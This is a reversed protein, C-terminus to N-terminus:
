DEMNITITKKEVAATGHVDEVEEVTQLGMLAAPCYIRAFFSAARYQLMQEPMTKWKSGDKTSWGEDKAMQMTITSGYLQEGDAKRTCTVYCGYSPTNREGIFVFRLPSFQGTGNILAICAQGSWAPKGKVIYLSQMVLTPSVNMRNALECAVFCNDKNHQYNDPVIQSNAYFGALKMLTNLTRADTLMSSYAQIAVPESQVTEQMQTEKQEM